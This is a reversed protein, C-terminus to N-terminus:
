ARRAVRQSLTSRKRLLPPASACSSGLSPASAHPGNPGNAGVPRPATLPPEPERGRRARAIRDYEFFGDDVALAHQLADNLGKLCNALDSNVRVFEYALQLPLAWDSPRGATPPLAQVAQEAEEKVAAMWATAEATYRIQPRRRGETVVIFGHKLRNDPVPRGHLWIELPYRQPTAFIVTPTAAPSESSLAAVQRRAGRHEQEAVLAAADAEPHPPPLPSSATGRGLRRLISRM